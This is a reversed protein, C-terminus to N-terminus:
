RRRVRGERRDRLNLRRLAGVVVGKLDGDLLPEGLAEAGLAEIDPRLRQLAEVEIGGAVGAVARFRAQPCDVVVIKVPLPRVEILTM